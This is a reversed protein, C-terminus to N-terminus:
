HSAQSEEPGPIAVLGRRGPGPSRWSGRGPPCLHQGMVAAVRECSATQCSDGCDSARRPEWCGGWGAPGRRGSGPRPTCTHHTLPWSLGWPRGTPCSRQPVPQLPPPWPGPSIPGESGTGPREHTAKYPCATQLSQTRRSLFHRGSNVARVQHGRERGQGSLKRHHFPASRQVRYRQSVYESEAM